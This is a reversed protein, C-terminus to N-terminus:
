CSGQTGESMTSVSPTRERETQPTLVAAVATVTCFILSYTSIQLYRDICHDILYNIGQKRWQQHMDLVHLSFFFFGETFVDMLAAGHSVEKNEDGEFDGVAKKDM